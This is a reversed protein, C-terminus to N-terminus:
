WYWHDRVCVWVSHTSSIASVATSRSGLDYQSQPSSYTPPPFLPLAPSDGNHETVGGEGEFQYNGFALTFDFQLMFGLLGMSQTSDVVEQMREFPPNIWLLKDESWVKRSPAMARQGQPAGPTTNTSGKVTAQPFVSEPRNRFQGTGTYAWVRDALRGPSRHTPGPASAGLPAIAAACSSGTKGLAERQDRPRKVAATAASAPVDWPAPRPEPGLPLPTGVLINAKVTSQLVETWQMASHITNRDM